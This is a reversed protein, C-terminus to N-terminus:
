TFVAIKQRLEELISCNGQIYKLSLTYKVDPDPYKSLFIDHMIKIVLRADRYSQTNSYYVKKHSLLIIKLCIKGDVVDSRSGTSISRVDKLVTNSKKL